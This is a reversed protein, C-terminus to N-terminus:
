SGHNYWHKLKEKKLHYLLSVFFMFVIETLLMVLNIKYYKPIAFIFSFSSDLVLENRMVIIPPFLIALMSLISFLTLAPKYKDM